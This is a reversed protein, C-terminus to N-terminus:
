YLKNIDNYLLYHNNGKKSEMILNIYFNNKENTLNAINKLRFNKTKTTCKKIELNDLKHCEYVSININLILHLAELEANSGWREPIDIKKGNKKIYDHDGAFINFYKEYEEFSDLDHMDCILNEYTYNFDDFFISNKEKNIILYKVALKQILHTMEYFEDTAEQYDNSDLSPLITMIQNYIDQIEENDFENYNKTFNDKILKNKNKIFFICFSYYMCAGDAITKIMKDREMKITKEEYDNHINKFVEEYEEINEYHTKLYCNKSFKVTNKNCQKGTKLIFRCKNNNIETNTSM